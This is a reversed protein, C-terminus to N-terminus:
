LGGSYFERVAFSRAYAKFRPAVIISPSCSYTQGSPIDLTAPAPLRAAVSREPSGLWWPLSSCTNPAFCCTRRPYSTTSKGIFPPAVGPSRRRKAKAARSFKVAGFASEGETKQNASERCARFSGLGGHCRRVFTQRLAVVGAGPSPRNLRRIALSRGPLGPHAAVRQKQKGRFVERSRVRVAGGDHESNGIGPLGPIFGLWWLLSSCITPAACCTRCRPEDVLGIFPAFRCKTSNIRRSVVM